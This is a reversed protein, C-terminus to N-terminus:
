FAEEEEEEEAAPQQNVHDGPDSLGPVVLTKFSPGCLFPSPSSPHLIQSPHLPTSQSVPSPHPNWLGETETCVIVNLGWPASPPKLTQVTRGTLSKFWFSSGPLQHRHRCIFSKAGKLHKLIHHLYIIEIQRKVTIPATQEKMGGCKFM